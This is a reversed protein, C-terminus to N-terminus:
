WTIRFPVLTAAGLPLVSLSIRLHAADGRTYDCLQAYSQCLQSLMRLPLVWLDHLVTCERVNFVPKKMHIYFFSIINVICMVRTLLFWLVEKFIYLSSRKKNTYWKDYIWWKLINLYYLIYKSLFIKNDVKDGTFFEHHYIKYALTEM